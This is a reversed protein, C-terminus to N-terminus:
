VLKRLSKSFLPKVCLDHADTIYYNVIINVEKILHSFISFHPLLKIATMIEEMLKPIYLIPCQFHCYHM